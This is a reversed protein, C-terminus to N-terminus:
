DLLVIICILLVVIIGLLVATMYPKQLFSVGGNVSGCKETKGPEEKDDDQELDIIDQELEEESRDRLDDRWDKDESANNRELLNM